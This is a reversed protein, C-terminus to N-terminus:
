ENKNDDTEESVADAVDDNIPAVTKKKKFVIVLVVAIAAVVLVGAGIIVFLLVDPGDKGEDDKTDTTDDLNEDPKVKPEEVETYAVVPDIFITNNEWTCDYARINIEIEDGEFVKFCGTTGAKPFEATRSDVSITLRDSIVTDNKKLCIEVTGSGVPDSFASFPSDKTAAEILGENFLVVKGTKPAVFVLKAQGNNGTWPGRTTVALREGQKDLAVSSAYNAIRKAVVEEYKEEGPKAYTDLSQPSICAFNDEVPGDATYYYTSAYWWDKAVELNFYWPMDDMDVEEYDDPELDEVCEQLIEYCGYVENELIEWEQGFAAVTNDEPLASAGFGSFMAFVLTLAVLSVGFKKLLSKM